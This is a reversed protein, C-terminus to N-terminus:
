KAVSAAGVSDDIVPGQPRSQAIAFSDDYGNSDFPM